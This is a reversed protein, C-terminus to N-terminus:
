TGGFRAAVYDCGVCIHPYTARWMDERLRNTRKGLGDRHDRSM